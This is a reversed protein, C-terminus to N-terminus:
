CARFILNVAGFDQPASSPGGLQGHSGAILTRVDDCFTVTSAYHDLTFKICSRNTIFSNLLGGGRSHVFLGVLCHNHRIGGIRRGCALKGTCGSNSEQVM